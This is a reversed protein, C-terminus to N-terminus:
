AFAAVYLRLYERSLPTVHTSIPLFRVPFEKEQSTGVGLFLLVVARMLSVAKLLAPTLIPDSVFVTLMLVRAIMWGVVPSTHVDPTFLKCSMTHSVKAVGPSTFLM